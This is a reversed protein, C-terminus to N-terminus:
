TIARASVYGLDPKDTKVHRLRDCPAISIMRTAVDRRTRVNPVTKAPNLLEVALRIPEDPYVYIQEAVLSQLSM